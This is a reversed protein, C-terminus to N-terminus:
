LLHNCFSAFLFFTLARGGLSSSPVERNSFDAFTYCPIEYCDFASALQAVSSENLFM